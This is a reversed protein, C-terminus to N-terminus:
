SAKKSSISRKKLENIREDTSKVARQEMLKWIDSKRYYHKQAISSYSINGSKRLRYLTKTSIKLLECVEDDNLWVSSDTQPQETSQEIFTTIRDIKHLLTRWEEANIIIAEM